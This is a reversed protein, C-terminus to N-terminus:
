NKALWAPHRRFLRLQVQGQERIYPTIALKKGNKEITITGGEFETVNAWDGSEFTLRLKVLRKSEM